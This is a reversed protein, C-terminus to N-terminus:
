PRVVPRGVSYYTFGLQRMLAPDYQNRGDFIVPSSLLEHMRNFDPNRFESWETVLALADAGRCADYESRAYSIKAGLIAKATPMAVPDYARVAAGAKLLNDIIVLAPAERMDDTQPKFALGWLAITKGKLAGKFHRKIKAFLTRKQAENVSEVSELIRLAYKVGRATAILAQVDKPFCSGGYGIGPFLFRPGIRSDIGIAHRVHEINAGIAECINAIENMFSVRTALMANAAYKTMEASRNDMVLFAAGTRLFPAYLQRMVAEAHASDTGIVVREPKLFDDLAAGEKMFEPNSVVDFPQRTVARLKERVRDATGVPVTSKLVIVRHGDMHRGVAEIVSFVASLDACGNTGPPTGVALFIVEGHAAGEELSGTVRLRRMAVNRAVLESLGPEYIPVKGRRIMRVKAPNNDVCLVDNGSEAFCTGAVLGVYGTGVVTVNM